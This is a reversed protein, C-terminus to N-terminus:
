FLTMQGRSPPDYGNEIALEEAIATVLEAISRYDTNELAKTYFFHSRYGTDSVIKSDARYAIHSVLPDGHQAEKKEPWYFRYDVQVLFGFVNIELNTNQKFQEPIM